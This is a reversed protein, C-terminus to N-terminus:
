ILGILTTEQMFSAVPLTALGLEKKRGEGRGRGALKEPHKQTYVCHVIKRGTTFKLLVIVFVLFCKTKNRCARARM